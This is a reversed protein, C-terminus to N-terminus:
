CINSYQEHQFRTIDSLNRRSTSWEFLGQYFLRLQLDGKPQFFQVAALHSNNGVKLDLDAILGDKTWSPNTSAYNM